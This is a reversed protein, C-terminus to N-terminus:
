GLQRQRSEAQNVSHWIIYFAAVLALAASVRNPTSKRASLRRAAKVGLFGGAVGGAGFLGSM